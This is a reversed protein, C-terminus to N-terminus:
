NGNARIIRIGKAALTVAIDAFHALNEGHRRDAVVRDARQEAQFGNSIKEFEKAFWDRAKWGFSAVFVLSTGAATLGAIVPGAWDTM